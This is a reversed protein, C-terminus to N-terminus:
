KDYIAQVGERVIAESIGDYLSVEGLCRALVFRAKGAEAKKDLTLLQLIDEISIEKPITYPLNCVMLTELITERVNTPTIGAKEGIHSAAIMGIGVAEGHKFRKYNTVAELAHGVTHGFNLIARLGTTEYEDQM